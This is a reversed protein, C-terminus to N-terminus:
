APAALLPRVVVPACGRPDLHLGIGFRGWARTRTARYATSARTSRRPAAVFAQMAPPPSAFPQRTLSIAALKSQRASWVSAASRRARCRWAGRLPAPRAARAEAEKGRLDRFLVLRQQGPVEARRQPLRVPQASSDEEAQGAHRAPASRTSLGERLTQHSGHRRQSM